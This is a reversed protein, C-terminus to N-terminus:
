IMAEAVQYTGEIAVQFFYNDHFFIFDGDHFVTFAFVGLYNTQQDSLFCSQFFM